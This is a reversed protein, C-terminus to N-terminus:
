FIVSGRSCKGAEQSLYSMPSGNGDNKRIKCINMLRATETNALNLAATLTVASSGYFRGSDETEYQSIVPLRILFLEYGCYRTLLGLRLSAWSWYDLLDTSQNARAINRCNGGSM